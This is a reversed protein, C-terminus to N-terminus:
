LPNQWPAYNWNQFLNMAARDMAANQPLLVVADLSAGKRAGLTLSHEGPELAVEPIRYWYTDQDGFHHFKKTHAGRTSTWDSFGIMATARLARPG